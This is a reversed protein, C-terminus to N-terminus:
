AKEPESGESDQKEYDKADLSLNRPVLSGTRKAGSEPDVVSHGRQAAQVLEPNQESLLKYSKEAEWNFWSDAAFVLNMEELTRQNTEPYFAWVIPITAANVAGFVYLSKEGLASFMTPLLLVQIRTLWRLKVPCFPLKQRKFKGDLRQRYVMWCCGM